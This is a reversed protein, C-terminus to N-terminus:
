NSITQGQSIKKMAMTNSNSCVLLSMSLRQSSKSFEDMPPGLSFCTGTNTVGMNLEPDSGLLRRAKADIGGQQLVFVM